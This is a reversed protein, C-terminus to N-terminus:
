CRGPPWSPLPTPSVPRLSPWGPPSRICVSGARCSGPSPSPSLSAPSTPLFAANAVLGTRFTRTRLLALDLVPSAGRRSLHRQWALTAAGAPLAAALATWTWAPWGASRGLTLPVLLLALVLTVGLAGAPDLGPPRDRKPTPLMRTALVAALAGVPVNVLFILRWGLGALDSAVLLEGLVEGAVSGAGGGRRVLGARPGRVPPPYSATILALVQPLM